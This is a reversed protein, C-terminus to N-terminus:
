VYYDTDLLHLYCCWSDSGVDGRLIHVIYFNWNQDVIIVVDALAQKKIHVNVVKSAFDEEQEVTQRFRHHM